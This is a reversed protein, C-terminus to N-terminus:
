QWDVETRKSACVNYLRCQLALLALALPLPVPHAQLFLLLESHKAWKEKKGGQREKDSGDVARNRVNFIISCYFLPLLKSLLIKPLSTANHEIEGVCALVFKKQNEEHAATSM